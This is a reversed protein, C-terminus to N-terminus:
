LGPAGLQLGASVQTLDSHGVLKYGLLSKEFVDGKGRAGGLIVAAKGVEPYIVYAVSNDRLKPLAPDALHLKSEVAVTQPKITHACSEVPEQLISFHILHFLARVALILRM